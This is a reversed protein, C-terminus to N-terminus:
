SAQADLLARRRNVLLDATRRGSEDARTFRSVLDDVFNPAKPSGVFFEGVKSRVEFYSTLLQELQAVHAAPLYEKANEIEEELSLTAGALAINKENALNPLAKPDKKALELLRLQETDSQPFIVENLDRCARRAQYVVGSLQQLSQLTAQTVALKTTLAHKLRETEQSFSSELKTTQLKLTRDLYWKGIAGLVAVTVAPTTLQLFYDNV